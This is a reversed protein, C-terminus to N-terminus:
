GGAPPPEELLALGRLWDVCRGPWSAAPTGENGLGFGHGGQEYIHLEAPVNHARLALYFLVSNEPPVGPDDSAHVLFTPPTEATVQTENCLTEVLQEDPDDGLLNVRSGWHGHPRKLTIVPYALIAFDPRSSVREVPDADDPNGPDFHTAVTSALHGGASFGLIGIRGPDIDLADAGARATRMARQADQFPAPHRCGDGGNRYQLVVATVGLTDLWRAVDHGEHDIAIGGYGGGACVVVATGNARDPAPRYTTVVPKAAGANDPAGPPGSPWLLAEAAM